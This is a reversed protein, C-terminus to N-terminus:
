VSFANGETLRNAEPAANATADPLDIMWLHAMQYDAHVVSYEGYKEKRDKLTKSEPDLVAFAIRRSDPAWEFAGIDNEAKTLQQAEGGDASIVYLQKKGEPTDKIQGPRDSLFGVWKGDPSWAANTSSKKASTLAHSEDTAVEAIWLSREFANEEWNAKQVEYVVRKGDPSIKPNFATKWELSQDITPTTSAAQPATKEPEQALATVVLFWCAALAVLLLSLKRM